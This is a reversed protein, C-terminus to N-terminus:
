TMEYDLEVIQIDDLFEFLSRQHEIENANINSLASHNVIEEPTLRTNPNVDIMGKILDKTEPSITNWVEGEFPDENFDFSTQNYERPTMGILLKYFIIGLSYVDTLTSSRKTSILEPAAYPGDNIWNSTQISCYQSNILSSSTFGTVAVQFQTCERNSYYDRRVLINEPILRRHNIGQQSIQLLSSSLQKMISLAEFESLRGYDRLYYFMDIDSYDDMIIVLLDNSSENTLIFYDHIKIINPHSITRIIECSQISNEYFEYESSVFKIAVKEHTNLSLAHHISVYSNCEITCLIQYDGHLTQLITSNFLSRNQNQM